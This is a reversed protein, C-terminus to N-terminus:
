QPIAHFQSCAASQAVQKFFAVYRLPSRLHLSRRKPLRPLTLTEYRVYGPEGDSWSNECGTCRTCTSSTLLHHTGRWVFASVLERGCTVSKAGVHRAALAVSAQELGILSLSCGGAGDCRFTGTERLLLRSSHRTCSMLAGRVIVIKEDFQDSTRGRGHNQSM